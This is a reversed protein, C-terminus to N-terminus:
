KNVCSNINEIGCDSEMKKFIEKEEDTFDDFSSLIVIQNDNQMENLYVMILEDDFGNEAYYFLCNNDASLKCWVKKTYYKGIFYATNEIDKYVDIQTLVCQNHKCDMLLKIEQEGDNHHLVQYTGNGYACVTDKGEEYELNGKCGSICM